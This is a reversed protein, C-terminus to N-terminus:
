GSDSQNGSEITRAVNGRRQNRNTSVSNERGSVGGGVARSTTQSASQFLQFQAAVSGDRSASFSLLRFQSITAHTAFGCRHNARGGFQISATLGVGGQRNTSIAGHWQEVLGITTVVTTRSRRRRSLFRISISTAVSVLKFSTGSGCRNTSRSFHWLSIFSLLTAWSALTGLSKAGLFFEYCTTGASGSAVVSLERDVGITFAAGRAVQNAWSTGGGTGGTGNADATQGIGGVAGGAIGSAAIHRNSFQKEARSISDTTSDNGIHRALM